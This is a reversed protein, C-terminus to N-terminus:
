GQSFQGVYFFAQTPESTGGGWGGRVKAQQSQAVFSVQAEEKM